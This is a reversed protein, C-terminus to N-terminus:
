RARQELTGCPSFSRRHQRSPGMQQLAQRHQATGYGKHTELGYGPYRAALRTMLDDRWVKAIVSAAAIVLSRQDGKILTQQPMLLKPIPQNGDVLCFQPQPLLRSVARQMALLSANLINLRDIEAASAVGIQCGVALARVQAALILRQSPSLQKSDTLGAQSLPELATSPLIVAAAVVPGFLAGRGVEDIGAVQESPLPAFQQLQKSDLRNM